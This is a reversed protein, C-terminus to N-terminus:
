RINRVSRMSENTGGRDTLNVNTKFFDKRSTNGPSNINLSDRSESARPAFMM